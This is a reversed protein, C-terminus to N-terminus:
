NYGACERSIRADQFNPQTLDQSHVTPTNCAGGPDGFGCLAHNFEDGVVAECRFIAGEAGHVALASQGPMSNALIATM